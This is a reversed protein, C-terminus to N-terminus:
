QQHRKGTDQDEWSRGKKDNHAKRFDQYDEHGHWRGPQRCCKGASDGKEPRPLVAPSLASCSPRHWPAGVGGRQAYPSM